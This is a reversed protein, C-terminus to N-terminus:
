KVFGAKSCEKFLYQSLLFRNEKDTTSLFNRCVNLLSTYTVANPTVKKLSMKKFVRFAVEFAGKRDDPHKSFACANIVSTYTVTNPIVSKNGEDHQKQM